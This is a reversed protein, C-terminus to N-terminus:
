MGSKRSLRRRSGSLKRWLRTVTWARTEGRREESCSDGSSVPREVRKLTRLRVEAMWSEGVKKLLPQPEAVSECGSSVSPSRSPTDLVHADKPTIGILPYGKQVKIEGSLGIDIGISACSSRGAEEEESDEVVTGIDSSSRRSPAMSCSSSVPLTGYSSNASSLTGLSYRRALEPAPKPPHPSGIASSRAATPRWDGSARREANVRDYDRATIPLVVSSASMGLRSFRPTTEYTNTTMWNKSPDPSTSPRRVHISPPLIAFDSYSDRPSPIRPRLTSTSPFPQPMGQISRSPPPPMYPLVPLDRLSASWNDRSSMRTKRLSSTRPPPSTVYASSQPRDYSPTSFRVPGKTPKKLRSVTMSARSTILPLEEKISIEDAVGVISPHSLAPGALPSSCLPRRDVFSLRTNAQHSGLSIDKFLITSPFNVHGVGVDGVLIGDETIGMVVSAVGQPSM